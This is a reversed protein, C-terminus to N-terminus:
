FPIEQDAALDDKDKQSLPNNVAQVGLTLVDMKKGAVLMREKTIIASKGVWAATDDGYALVMEDRSMKNLRMKKEAGKYTVKIVFDQKPTGDEWTYKTNEVWEGENRFTVSDGNNVEATKLYSGTELKMNTEGKTKIAEKGIQIDRITAGQKLYGAGQRATTRRKLSYILWRQIAFFM